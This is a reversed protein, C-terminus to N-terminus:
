RSLKIMLLTFTTLNSISFITQFILNKFKSYIDSKNKYTLDQENILTLVLVTKSDVEDIKGYIQYNSLSDIHFLPFNKKYISFSM